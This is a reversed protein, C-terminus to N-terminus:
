NKKKNKSTKFVILIMLKLRIFVLNKFFKLYTLIYLFLLNGKKNLEDRSNTDWQFILFYSYYLHWKIFYFMWIGGIIPGSPSKPDQNLFVVNSSCSPPTKCHSRSKRIWDEKVEAQNLLNSSEEVHLQFLLFHHTPPVSNAM